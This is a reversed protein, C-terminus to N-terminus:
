ADAAEPAEARARLEALLAAQGDLTISGRGDRVPGGSLKQWRQRCLNRDLDLDAAVADLGRGSTLAEALEQDDTPLWVPDHPLSDLHRAVRGRIGVSPSVSLVDAARRAPPPTPEAAKAAPPAEANQPRAGQLRRLAMTVGQTVRNLREAIEATSLGDAHLRALQAMEDESWPGRKRDPQRAASSHPAPDACPAPSPLPEPQPAAEAQAEAIGAAPCDIPPLTLSVSIRDGERALTVGPGMEDVIQLLRELVGAREVLEDLEARLPALPDPKARTM